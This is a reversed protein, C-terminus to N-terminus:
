EPLREPQGVDGGGRVFEILRTSLLKDAQECKKSVTGMSAGQCEKRRTQYAADVKDDARLAERQTDDLHKWPIPPYKAQPPLRTTLEERALTVCTGDWRLADYGGMGSIQVGGKPPARDALVLVEEDFALYEESSSAGGSANWAKTKRTLYGRTFPTGKRFLVLAVGLSSERCLREVFAKPPVCLEGSGACATPISLDVSEEAEPAEAQEPEAAPPPAEAVPPPAAPESVTGGCAGLLAGGVGLVGLLSLEVSRRVM